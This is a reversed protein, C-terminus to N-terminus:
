LDIPLFAPLSCNSTLVKMDGREESHYLMEDATGEFGKKKKKVEPRRLPHSCILPPAKTASLSGRTSWVQVRCLLLVHVKPGEKNLLNQCIYHM